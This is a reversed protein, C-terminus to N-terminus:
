PKKKTRTRADHSWTAEWLARFARAQEVGFEGMCVPIRVDDDPAPKDTSRRGEANTGIKKISRTGRRTKM